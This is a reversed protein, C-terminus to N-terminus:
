ETINKKNSHFRAFSVNLPHSHFLMSCGAIDECSTRISGLPDWPANAGPCTCSGRWHQGAYHRCLLNALSSMLQNRRHPVFPSLPCDIVIMNSGAFSNNKPRFRLHALYHAQLFNLEISGGGLRFRQIGIAGAGDLLLSVLSDGCLIAGTCREM